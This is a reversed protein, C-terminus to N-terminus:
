FQTTPSTGQINWRQVYRCVYISGINIHYTPSKDSPKTQKSSGSCAMAM